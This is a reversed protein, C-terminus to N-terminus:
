RETAIAADQPDHPVDLTSAMGRLRKVEALLWEIDARAQAIFEADATPAPGSRLVNALLAGSGFIRIQGGKQHRVDVARWPGRSARQVRARIEDLQDMQRANRLESKM